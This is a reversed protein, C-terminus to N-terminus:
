RLNTRTELLTFCLKFLIDISMYLRSASNYYFKLPNNHSIKILTRKSFTFRLVNLKLKRRHKIRWMRLIAIGNRFPPGPAQYIQVQVIAMDIDQLVRKGSTFLFRNATTLVSVEIVCKTARCDNFSFYWGNQPPAQFISSDAICGTRSLATFYALQSECPTKDANIKPCQLDRM